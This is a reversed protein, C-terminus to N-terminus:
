VVSTETPRRIGRRLFLAVGVLTVIGGIVQHLTIPSHLIWAALLIAGLPEGLITVSLTTANLYQLLWNFLAHGFLTPILALLAIWLWDVPRFGAMPARASLNFFLLTVTAIAFVSANYASSPLRARVRQGVLMYGSIAVTGFLSLLDGYITSKSGHEDGIGVIMTGVLACVLSVYGRTSLRERFMFTAGIAVFGPQLSTIIMSSAISTHKLSGIWLLFHLGLLVGSVILAIGDRRSLTRVKPFQHIAWPILVIVSFALRYMGIAGAPASCLKIFISSFSVAIVGVFVPLTPFWLPHPSSRHPLSSKM